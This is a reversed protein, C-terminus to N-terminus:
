NLNTYLPAAIVDITYHIRSSILMFPMWAIMLYGLYQIWKPLKFTIIETTLIIAIGTHGSFFFDRTRDYPVILSPIPPTRWVIDDPFPFFLIMKTIDFKSSICDKACLVYM